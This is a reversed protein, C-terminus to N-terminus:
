RIGKKMIRKSVTASLTRPVFRNGLAMLANMTGAISSLRGGFLARLGIQAVQRSDMRSRTSFISKDGNVINFSEFFQTDTPGPCLCSVVVRYEEMEKALAESFNLVYSKTAGYAALYPDPQFAATSAVNLIYGRKKDKMDRGILHCLATPTGVNLQIMEGVRDLDLDVHEGGVGFGANNILVDIDMNRKKIEGHLQRASDPGALDIAFTEVRIGHKKEFTAKIEGLTQEKRGVLFLDHGKEALIDAFERGIGSTAGTVLARTKEMDGGMDMPQFKKVAGDMEM